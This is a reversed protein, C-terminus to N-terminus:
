PNQKKKTPRAQERGVMKCSAEKGIRGGGGFGFKDYKKEIVQTVALKKEGQQDQGREKDTIRLL